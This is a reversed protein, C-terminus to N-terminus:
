FWDIIFLNSSAGIIVVMNGQFVSPAEAGIEFGDALHELLYFYYSGLRLHLFRMLGNEHFRKMFPYWLLGLTIPVIGLM